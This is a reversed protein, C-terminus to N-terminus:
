VFISVQKPLDIWLQMGRPDPLDDEHVPMEALNALILLCLASVFFPTYRTHHRQRCVDM